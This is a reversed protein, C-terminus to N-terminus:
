VNKIISILGNIDKNLIDEKEKILNKSILEEGLRNLLHNAAISLGRLVYFNEESLQFIIPVVIKYRFYIDVLNQDSDIKSIAELIDKDNKTYIRFNIKGEPIFKPEPPFVLSKSLKPIYGFEIANKAYESRLIRNMIKNVKGDDILNELFFTFSEIFGEDTMLSLFAYPFIKSYTDSWMLITDIYGEKTIRDKECVEYIKKIMEKCTEYAKERELVKKFFWDLDHLTYFFLEAEDVFDTYWVLQDESLECRAKNRGFLVTPVKEFGKKKADFDLKSVQRDPRICIWKKGEKEILLYKSISSGHYLMNVGVSQRFRPM